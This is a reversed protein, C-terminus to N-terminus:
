FTLRCEALGSEATVQEVWLWGNAATGVRWTGDATPTLYSGLITAVDTPEDETPPTAAPNGPTVIMTRGTRARGDYTTADDTNRLWIKTGNGRVAQVFEGAPVTDKDVAGVLFPDDGKYQIHEYVLVGCGPHPAEGDTPKRVLGQNATDVVLATGLVWLADSNPPIRSRADRVINEFSRFGFNRSYGM